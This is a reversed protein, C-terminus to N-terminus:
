TGNRRRTVKVRMGHTRFAVVREQTSRAVPGSFAVSTGRVKKPDGEAGAVQTVPTCNARARRVCNRPRELGGSPRGNPVNTVPRAFETRIGVDRFPVRAAVGGSLTRFCGAILSNRPLGTCHRCPFPLQSIYSDDPIRITELSPFSRAM